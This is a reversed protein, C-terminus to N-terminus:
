DLQGEKHQGFLPKAKVLQSQLSNKEAHQKRRITKAFEFATHIVIHKFGQKLIEKRRKISECELKVHEVKQEIFKQLKLTKALQDKASVEDALVKKYEQLKEEAVQPEEREAGALGVFIETVAEDEEFISNIEKKSIGVEEALQFPLESEKLLDTVSFSQFSYAENAGAKSLHFDIIKLLTADDFYNM